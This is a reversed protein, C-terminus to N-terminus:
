RHVTNVVAELADTLSKEDMYGPHYLRVIGHNDALVITPTTSAGFRDFNSADLVVIAKPIIAYYRDFVQDIVRKEDTESVNEQAATYGYFRTPAIVVLGKPEFEAAIKAIVPADAKCDACWQAWFFFLAPKGHWTNPAGRIEPLPHGVLTLLLLNKQLRGAISTARWELEASHLLQLAESRRKLAVLAQAQVEYAAGLALPTYPDADLKRLALSQKVLREVEDADTIAQEYQRGHLEGRALWSMAALAEPTTGFQRRYRATLNQADALDGRTVLAEVYRVVQADLPVCSGAVLLLFLALRV